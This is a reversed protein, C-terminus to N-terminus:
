QMWWWRGDNDDNDDDTNDNDDVDVCVDGRDGCGEDDDDYGDGNINNTADDVYIYEDNVICRYTWKHKSVKIWYKSETCVNM